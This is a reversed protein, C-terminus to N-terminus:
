HICKDEVCYRAPEWRIKASRSERSIETMIRSLLVRGWGEGDIHHAFAYLLLMAGSRYHKIGGSDHSDSIGDSM